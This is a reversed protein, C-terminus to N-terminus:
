QFNLRLMDKDEFYHAVSDNAFYKMEFDGTEENLVPEIINNFEFILNGGQTLFERKIAKVPSFDISIGGQNTIM